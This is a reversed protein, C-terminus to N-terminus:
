AKIEEIGLHNFLSASLGSVGKPTKVAYDGPMIYAGGIRLPKIDCTHIGGGEPAEREGRAWLEIQSAHSSSGNYKVAELEIQDARYKM